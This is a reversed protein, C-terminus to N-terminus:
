YLMVTNSKFNASWNPSNILGFAAIVLSWAKDSSFLAFSLSSKPSIVCSCKSENLVTNDLYMLYSSVYVLYVFCDQTSCAPIEFWVLCNLSEATNRGKWLTAIQLPLQWYDQFYLGPCFVYKIIFQCGFWLGCGLWLLIQRVQCCFPLGSM